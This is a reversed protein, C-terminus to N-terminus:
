LKESESVLDIIPVRTSHRREALLDRAWLLELLGEAYEGSPACAGNYREKALQSSHPRTGLDCEVWAHSTCGAVDRQGGVKASQRRHRSGCVEIEPIEFHPESSQRRSVVESLARAALFARKHGEVALLENM